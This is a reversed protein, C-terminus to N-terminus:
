KDLGKKGTWYNKGWVAFTYRQDLKEIEYDVYYLLGKRLIFNPPYYDINISHANAKKAMAEVQPIYRSVDEKKKIMDAINRGRIYQKLVLEQEFDIAYCKPIRIHCQKLYEYSDNEAQIKNGFKYYSVEEHHIAKVVYYHGRRKVLYSYGGKGHGLLKTATYTKGEIEFTKMEEVICSKERGVLAFLSSFFFVIRVCFRLLLSFEM